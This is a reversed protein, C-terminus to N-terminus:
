KSDDEISEDSLDVDEHVVTSKIRKQPHVNFANLLQYPHIEDWNKVDCEEVSCIQAVSINIPKMIKVKDVVIISDDLSVVENVHEKNNFSEVHELFNPIEMEKRDQKTLNVGLWKRVEDFNPFSSPDMKELLYYVNLFAIIGCNSGDEQRLLNTPQLKSWQAKEVPAVKAILNLLDCFLDIKKKRYLSDLVVVVKGSLSILVAFWHHGSITPFIIVDEPKAKRLENEVDM